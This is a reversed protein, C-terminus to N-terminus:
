LMEGSVIEEIKKWAKIMRLRMRLIDAYKWTAPFIKVEGTLEPREIGDEGMVKKTPAWILKGTPIKGTIAHMGTAYFLMQTDKDVKAQTWATAGTKDEYFASYDAKCSDPRILIPVREKGVVIETEIKKDRIEYAPIQALVLDKVINGTEEDNEMAEAIEKGLAQGRNTGLKKGELYVQVYLGPSKEVMAM